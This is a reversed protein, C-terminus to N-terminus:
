FGVLLPSPLIALAGQFGGLPPQRVLSAEDHHPKRVCFFGMGVLLCALLNSCPSLTHKNIECNRTWKVSSESNTTFHVFM